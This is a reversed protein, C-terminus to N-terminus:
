SLDTPSQRKQVRFLLSPSWEQGTEAEVQQNYLVCGWWIEVCSDRSKSSHKTLSNVHFQATRSARGEVGRDHIVVALFFVAKLKITWNLGEVSMTTPPTREWDKRRSAMTLCNQYPCSHGSKSLTWGANGKGIVADGVRWPARFFPVTRWPGTRLSTNISWWLVHYHIM